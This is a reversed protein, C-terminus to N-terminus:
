IDGDHPPRTLTTTRKQNIHRMDLANSWVHPREPQPHGKPYGSPSGPGPTTQNQSASCSPAAAPLSPARRIWTTWRSCPVTSDGHSRYFEFSRRGPGFPQIRDGNGTALEVTNGADFAVELGLTECFFRVAAAYAGAPIGLWVQGKGKHSGPEGLVRM